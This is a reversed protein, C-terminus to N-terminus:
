SVSMSRKVLEVGTITVKKTPRVLLYGSIMQGAQYIPKSCGPICPFLCGSEDYEHGNDHLLILDLKRMHRLRHHQMRPSATVDDGSETRQYMTMIGVDSIPRTIRQRSPIEHRPCRDFFFSGTLILAAFSIHHTAEAPVVHEYFEVNQEVEFADAFLSIGLSSTLTSVVGQRPPRHLILLVRMCNDESCTVVNPRSARIWHSAIGGGGGSSSHLAERYVILVPSASLCGRTVWPGSGGQPWYSIRRLQKQVWKPDHPDHLRTKKQSRHKRLSHLFDETIHFQIQGTFAFMIGSIAKVRQHCVITSIAKRVLAHYKAQMPEHQLGIAFSMSGREDAHERPWGWGRGARPKRSEIHDHTGNFQRPPRHLILLVRMCNDESCTRTVVNPRSARIWHSATGGGGGSSSHLAERYVILVPSASLCGRTVWPGSGGQPWYSIRRLQKQVWKPDHPDHLRTKKQSRHKRLSHLFDETIHFQIQGTFAFMIGSIAKVKQHCVITSIAKRVLAHYKAQMPEHQLGIAFSMSGREDAHERPWGWGRGARPKRSEIHDHTGNFQWFVLLFLQM